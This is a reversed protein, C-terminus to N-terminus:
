PGRGKRNSLVIGPQNGGVDSRSGNAGLSTRARLLPCGAIPGGSSYSKPGPNPPADSPRSRVLGSPTPKSSIRCGGYGVADSVACGKGPGHGGGPETAIWGDGSWCYPCSRDTWGVRALEAFVPARLNNALVGISEGGLEGGGVGLEGEGPGEPPHASSGPKEELWEDPATTAYARTGGGLGESDM